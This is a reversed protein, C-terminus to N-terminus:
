NAKIKYNHVEGAKSSGWVVDLRKFFTLLDERAMSLRFGKLPRLNCVVDNSMGGTLENERSRDDYVAVPDNQHAKKTTLFRQPISM